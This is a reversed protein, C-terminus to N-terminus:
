NSRPRKNEPEQQNQSQGSQHIQHHQQQPQLPFNLLARAGRMKFAARDYARAAQEATDFTGLWIRAGQRMSDRIEAAFKGWPRQRVGRYHQRQLSAAPMAATGRTESQTLLPIACHAPQAAYHVTPAARNAVCQPLQAARHVVAVAPPMPTVIEPKAADALEPEKRQKPTLPQWGTRAAEKLLGYLIMDESDNENFDSLGGLVPSSAMAMAAAIPASTSSCSSTSPPPTSCVRKSIGWPSHISSSRNSAAAFSLDLPLLAPRKKKGPLINTSDSSSDPSLVASSPSSSPSSSSIHTMLRLASKNGSAAEQSFVGGIAERFRDSGVRDRLKQAIRISKRGSDSSIGGSRASGIPSDALQSTPSPQIHSDEAQDAEGLVLSSSVFSDVELLTKEDQDECDIAVEESYFCLSPSGFPVLEEQDM